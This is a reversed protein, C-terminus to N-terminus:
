YGGAATPRHFPAPPVPRHLLRRAPACRVPGVPRFPLHRRGGECGQLQWRRRPQHHRRFGDLPRMRVGDRREHRWGHPLRSHLLQPLRSRLFFVDQRLRCGADGGRRRHVDPSARHRSPQGCIVTAGLSSLVNIAVIPSLVDADTVSLYPNSNITVACADASSAGDTATPLSESGFNVGTGDTSSTVAANTAGSQVRGCVISVDRLALENREGDVAAAQLLVGATSMVASVMEAMPTVATATANADTANTANTANLADSLPARQLNASFARVARLTQQVVASSASTRDVDSVAAQLVKLATAATSSDVTVNLAVSANPADVIAALAAIHSGGFGRLPPVIALADLLLRTDAGASAAAIVTNAIARAASRRGADAVESLLAAVTAASAKQETTILPLPAETVGGLADSILVSLFSVPYEEVGATTTSATPLRFTMSSASSPSAVIVAEGTAGDMALVSYSLPYLTPDGAVWGQAKVTVLANAGVAGGGVVSATGLSPPPVVTIDVAASRSAANASATLIFRYTGVTLTDEAIILTTGNRGQPADLPDDLDLDCPAECTWRLTLGTPLGAFRAVAGFRVSAPVISAYELAFPPISAANLDVATVTTSATSNRRHTGECHLTWEIAAHSLSAWQGGGLVLRGRSTRNSRFSASAAFAEGLVDSASACAAAPECTLTANTLGEDADTCSWTLEFADSRSINGTPASLTADIAVLVSFLTVSANVAGGDSDLVRLVATYPADSAPLDFPAVVLAASTATSANSLGVPEGDDTYVTWLYQLPPALSSNYCASYFAEAEVHLGASTAFTVPASAARIVLKPVLQATVNVTVVASSSLGTTLDDLTVRFRHSGPTFAWSPVTLLSANTIVAADAASRLVATANRDVAAISWEVRPSPSVSASVDVVVDDCPGVSASTVFSVVPASVEAPSAPALETSAIPASCGSIDTTAYASGFLTGIKSATTFSNGASLTVIVTSGNAWSCTAADGILAVTAPTLLASCNPASVSTQKRAAATATLDISGNLYIEFGVFGQRWMAAVFASAAAGACAAATDNARSTCSPPLFGEACESCRPGSWVGRTTSNFCACTADSACLGNGSCSEASSCAVCSAGYYGPSCRRCQGASDYGVACQSCSQGSYHGHTSNSFCLCLGSVADCIGNLCTSGPVCRTTCNAGGYGSACAACVPGSWFGAVSTGVCACLGSSQCIGRGSCLGPCEDTCTAGYHGNDCVACHAGGWYGVSAGQGCADCFEGAWYGHTANAACVCNGQADCDGRRCSSQCTAIRRAQAAADTTAFTKCAAGTFNAACVSCRAGGWFGSSASRQCACVFSTIAGSVLACTGHGSCDVAAICTVNCNAGSYTSACQGCSAGTWYGQLVSAYCECKGAANCVGRGCGSDSCYATCTARPYYQPACATCSSGAFRGRVPDNLCADCRPGTWFGLTVDAHCVCVGAASCAGHLCTSSSCAPTLCSGGAYGPACRECRLGDFYGLLPSGFCTCAGNALCRGRGNCTTAADCQGSDTQFTHTITVYTTDVCTTDQAQLQFTVTGTGDVTTDRLSPSQIKAAGDLVTWQVSATSPATASATASTAGTGVLAGSVSSALTPRRMVTLSVVTTVNEVTATAALTVNGVNNFKVIAQTGIFQQLDAGAGTVSWRIVAFSTSPTTTATVNFLRPADSCVVTPGAVSGSLQLTPLPAFADALSRAIFLPYSANPLSQQDHIAAAVIETFTTLNASSTAQVEIVANFVVADTSAAFTAVYVRTTSTTALLSQLATQLTQPTLAGLMQGFLRLRQVLGTGTPVVFNLLTKTHSRVKLLRSVSLSASSSVSVTVTRTKIKKHLGSLSLSPTPSLSLSPTRTKTNNRRANGRARLLTANVTVNRHSQRWNAPTIALNQAGAQYSTSSLVGGRVAIVAHTVQALTEIQINACADVRSSCTMDSALTTLSMSTGGVTNNAFWVNSGKRFANVRLATHEFTFSSFQVNFASDFALNFAYSASSAAYLSGGIWAFSVGTVPNSTAALMLLSGASAYAYTFAKVQYFRYTMGDRMRLAAFVSAGTPASRTVITSSEVALTCHSVVSSSESYYFDATSNGTDTSVVSATWRRYDFKSYNAILGIDYIAYVGTPGSSTVTAAVNDLTIASRLIVCASYMVLVPFGSYASATLGTITYTLNTITANAFRLGFVSGAASATANVDMTIDIGAFVSDLILASEFAMGSSSFGVASLATRTVAISANGIANSFSIASAKAPSSSGAVVSFHSDVISVGADAIGGEVSVAFASQKASWVLLTAGSILLSSRTNAHGFVRVAYPVTNWDFSTTNIQTSVIRVTAGLELSSWNFGTCYIPQVGMRVTVNIASNAITLSSANIGPKTATTTSTIGVASSISESHITSTEILVTSNQSITETFTIGSTTSAGYAVFAYAQIIAREVIISTNTMNGFRIGMIQPATSGVFATEAYIQTGTLRVSSSSLTGFAMAAVVGNGGRAYFTCNTSDMSSGDFLEFATPNLLTAQFAIVPMYSAALGVATFTSADLLLYSGLYLAMGGDIVFVGAFEATSQAVLTSRRVILSANYFFAQNRMFWVVRPATTLTSGGTVRLSSDTIQLSSYFGFNTNTGFYLATVNGIAADLALQWSCDTIYMNSYSNFGAYGDLAVAYLQYEVFANNAVRSENFTVNRVTLNSYMTFSAEVQLAASVTPSGYIRAATSEIVVANMDGFYSNLAFYVAYARTSSQANLTSLLVTISTRVYSGGIYIASATLSGPSNTVSCNSFTLASNTMTGFVIYVAGTDATYTLNTGLFDFTCNTCVITDLWLRGMQSNEVRVRLNDYTGTLKLWNSTSQRSDRITITLNSASTAELTGLGDCHELLYEEGTATMTGPSCGTILAAALGSHAVILLSCMLWARIFMM